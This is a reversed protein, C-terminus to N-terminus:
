TPVNSLNVKGGASGESTKVQPMEDSQGMDDDDIVPEEASQIMQNQLRQRQVCYAHLDAKVGSVQMPPGPLLGLKRFPLVDMWIPVHITTNRHPELIQPSRIRHMAFERWEAHAIRKVSEFGFYEDSDEAAVDGCIELSGYVNEDFGVKDEETKERKPVLAQLVTAIDESELLCSRERGGEGRAVYEDLTSFVARYGDEGPFDLNITQM